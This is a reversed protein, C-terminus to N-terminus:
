AVDRIHLKTGDPQDYHPLFTSYGPRPLAGDRMDLMAQVAEARTDVIVDAPKPPIKPHKPAKEGEPVGAEVAARHKEHDAVCNEHVSSVTWKGHVSQRTAVVFAQGDHFHYLVMKNDGRENIRHDTEVRM